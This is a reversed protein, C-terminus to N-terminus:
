GLNPNKTQFCVMQCGQSRGVQVERSHHAQIPTGLFYLLTLSIRPKCWCGLDLRNPSNTYVLSSTLLTCPRYFTCKTRCQKVHARSPMKEPVSTVDFLRWQKQALGLGAL